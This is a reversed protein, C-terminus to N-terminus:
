GALAASRASMWREELHLWLPRTGAGTFLAVASRANPRPGSQHEEYRVQVRDDGLPRCELIRIDVGIGPLTGRAADLWRELDALTQEAGDPGRCLFAPDFSALAEALAAADPKGGGLWAELFEHFLRVTAAADADETM